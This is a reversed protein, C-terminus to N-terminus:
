PTWTGKLVWGTNTGNNAGAYVFANKQGTYTVSFTVAVRLTFNNGATSTSSGAASLTCQSNSVTGTGGPTLSASKATNADNFVNLQNTGVEYYISCQSVQNSSSPSFLLHITRLDALGNPDSVVVAFTQSAGSGMNPTLSVVTPPTASPSWTGKLVWGTNTGNNAGAYVFANKQGTYTVSFTVAV